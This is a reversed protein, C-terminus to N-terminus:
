FGYVVFRSVFGAVPNSQLNKEAKKNCRNQTAWFGKYENKM